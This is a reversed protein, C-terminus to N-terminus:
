NTRNDNVITRVLKALVIDSKTNAAIAAIMECRQVCKDRYKKTITAKEDSAARKVNEERKYQREFLYKIASHSWKIAFWMVVLFLGVTTNNINYEDYLLKESFEYLVITTTNM